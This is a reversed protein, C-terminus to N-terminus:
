PPGEALRQIQRRTTAVFSALAEENKRAVVPVEKFKQLTWKACLDGVEEGGHWSCPDISGDDRRTWFLVVSGLEPQVSVGRRAESAAVLALADDHRSSHESNMLVRDTHDVGSELLREAAAVDEIHEESPPDAEDSHLRALPFVTAGGCPVSSLYCVATAYRWHRNGNTDVHLGLHCRSAARTAPTLTGVLDIEDAHAPCGMLAGLRDEVSTLLQRQSDTWRPDEVGLGDRIKSQSFM